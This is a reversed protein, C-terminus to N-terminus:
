DEDWLESLAIVDAGHWDPRAQELVHLVEDRPGRLVVVGVHDIFEFVAVFRDALEVLQYQWGSQTAHLTGAGGTQEQVFAAIDLPRFQLPQVDAFVSAPLPPLYTTAM